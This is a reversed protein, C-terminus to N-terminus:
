FEVPMWGQDTLQFVPLEFNLIVWGEVLGDVVNNYELVNNIRVLVERGTEERKDADYEKIHLYDKETYNRDNIRLEYFKRSELILEFYDDLCKIVHTQNAVDCQDCIGPGTYSECEEADHCALGDTYVLCGWCILNVASGKGEIHHIHGTLTKTATTTNGEM